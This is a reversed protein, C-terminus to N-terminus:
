NGYNDEIALKGEHEDKSNYKSIIPEGAIIKDATKEYLDLNKDFRSQFLHYLKNDFNTGVGYYGYGSLRWIGGAPVEDFGVPFYMKIKKEQEIAKRTIEQGVDSRPNQGCNPRGLALYKEKTIALCAPACFYDHKAKICNTVQAPGVIYGRKAYDIIEHLANENMPICDADLFIFADNNVTEMIRNMWPGPETTEHWYNVPIEYHDMVKKHIEKVRPNLTKWCLTHIGINM